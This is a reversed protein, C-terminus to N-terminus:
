IQTAVQSTPLLQQTSPNLFLTSSSQMYQFRYWIFQGCFTKRKNGHQNIDAHLILILPAELWNVTTPSLSTTLSYDCRIGQVRRFQSSCKRSLNISHMAIKCVDSRSKRLLSCTALCINRMIVQVSDYSWYLCQGICEALCLAVCCQNHANM